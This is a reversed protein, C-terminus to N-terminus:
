LMGNCCFVCLGRLGTKVIDTSSDVMELSFEMQGGTSKADGQYERERECVPKECILSRALAVVHAAYIAFKSVLGDRAVEHLVVEFGVGGGEVVYAWRM